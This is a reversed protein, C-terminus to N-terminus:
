RGSEERGLKARNLRDNIATGLGGDPIPAVAIAPPAADDAKHLLGFLRSAAERLDGSPSLNFGETGSFPGFGLWIGKEPAIRQDTLLPANPAYHRELMGPSAPSTDDTPDAIAVPGAVAELREHTVGGSRLLVPTDGSADIVTSELGVPCAGGDLVMVAGAGFAARVHEATTPSLHGSPNASPAAIPGGFARLLAQGAPHDPARVAATPLGASALRSLPSNERRPLVLSLPGPWFAAALKEALPTVVVLPALDDAGAVHIILPNFAPRKKTEFIRVVARDSAADAGLGYVTETPFAVLGGARLRDAAEQITYGGPKAEVM